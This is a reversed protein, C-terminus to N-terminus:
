CNGHINEEKQTYTVSVWEYTTIPKKVVEIAEDDYYELEYGSWHDGTRLLDFAYYKDDHKFIIECSQIKGEDIWDSETVKEYEFGEIKENFYISKAQEETLKIGM